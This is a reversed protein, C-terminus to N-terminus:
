ALADIPSPADAEGEPPDVKTDAAMAEQRPPKL